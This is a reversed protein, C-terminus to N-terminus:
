QRAAEFEAPSVRELTGDEKVLIFIRHPTPQSLTLGTGFVGKSWNTFAGNNLRTPTPTPSPPPGTAM